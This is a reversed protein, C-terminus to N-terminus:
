LLPLLAMYNDVGQPNLRTPIPYFLICLPDNGNQKDTNYVNYSFILGNQDVAFIIYYETTYLNSQPRILPGVNIKNIKWQRCIELATNIPDYSEKIVDSRSINQVVFMFDDKQYIFPHYSFFDDITLKDKIQYINKNLKFVNIENNILVISSRDQTNIMKEKSKLLLTKLLNDYSIISNMVHKNFYKILLKYLHRGYIYIVGEDTYTPIYTSLHQLVKTFYDIRDSTRQSVITELLSLHYIPIKIPLQDFNYSDSNKSNDVITYRDFFDGIRLYRSLKYLWVTLELFIMYRNKDNYIHYNVQFPPKIRVSFENYNYVGYEIDKPQGLLSILIEPDIEYNLIEGDEIIPLDMPQYADFMIYCNHEKYKCLLGICKGSTNIRQKIFKFSKLLGINFYPNRLIEVNNNNITVSRYELKNMLLNHCIEGMKKDFIYSASHTDYLLESQKYQSKILKHSQIIVVTDREQYPRCHYVNYRPLVIDARHGFSEKTPLTFMYINIGFFEEFIRYFLLPDCYEDNLFKEKIEKISYDYLEQKMCSVNVQSILDKKLQQCYDNRAEDDLEVFDTKGVAFLINQIFSNRYDQTITRRIFDSDKNYEILKTIIESPVKNHKATKLKAIDVPKSINEETFKWVEDDQKSAFCCIYKGNSQIGVYPRDEYPCTFNFGLFNLVPRKFYKKDRLIKAKEWKKVEDENVVIPIKPYCKKTFEGKKSFMERLYENSRTKNRLLDLNSNSKLKKKNRQLIKHQMRYEPLYLQFEKELKTAYNIYVRLLLEFFKLAMHKDLESGIKSFSITVNFTNKPLEVGINIEEECNEYAYLDLTEPHKLFDNNITGSISSHRLNSDINGLKSLLKDRQPFPVYHIDLRTESKYAFPTMSTDIYFYKRFLPDETVLTALLYKDIQVDFFRRKGKRGEEGRKIIKLHPFSEQIRNKIIESDTQSEMKIQIPTNEENNINYKIFMYNVSSSKELIDENDEEKTWIMMYLHNFKTKYPLPHIMSFNPIEGHEDKLVKYIKRGNDDIYLLFPVNKSPIFRDIIDPMDEITIKKNNRTVLSYLEQVYEEQFADMEIPEYTTYQNIYKELDSITHNLQTLDKGKKEALGQEMDNIFTRLAHDSYEVNYMNSLIQRAENPEIRKLALYSFLEIERMSIDLYNEQIGRKIQTALARPNMKTNIAVHDEIIDSIYQVISIAEGNILSIYNIPIQSEEALKVAKTYENSYNECSDTM